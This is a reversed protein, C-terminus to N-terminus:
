NKKGGKGGGSDGSSGKSRFDGFYLTAEVGLAAYLAGAVDADGKGALCNGGDKDCYEQAAVIHYTGWLGLEYARSKDRLLADLNVRVPFYNARLFTGDEKNNYREHGAGLGVGLLLQFESDKVMVGDYGITLEPQIWGSTGFGITGIGWIRGATGPYLIAHAGVEVDGRVKDVLTTDGDTRVVAPFASPYKTPIVMTEVTPGVGWWRLDLAHAPTSALLLALIM